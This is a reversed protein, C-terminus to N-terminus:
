FKDFKGTFQQKEAVLSYVYVGVPLAEINLREDLGEEMNGNMKIIESGRLDFVQLQYVNTSNIRMQFHIWNRAPNPYVQLRYNPAHAQHSPTILCSSTDSNVVQIDFNCHQGAFGDIMIYYSTNPKLLSAILVSDGSLLKDACYIPSGWGSATQCSSLEYLVFQVGSGSSPVSQCSINDLKIAIQNTVCFTDLTTFKYWITNEINTIANSGSCEALSALTITPMPDDTGPIGTALMTSGAYATNELVIPTAQACDDSGFPQRPKGTYILAEWGSATTAGDSFFQFTLCGSPNEISAKITGLTNSNNIDGTYVNILRSNEADDGDFVYLYDWNYEIGITDLFAAWVVANTAASSHPCFTKQYSENNGYNGATGLDEFLANGATGGVAVTGLDIPVDSCYLRGIWGENVFTSNSQMKVTLCAKSSIFTGPQPAASSNGSYAGILNAATDAGNYIFIYDNGNSSSQLALQQDATPNPRFSIRVAKNTDPNCFTKVYNENNSYNYSSGGSDFFDHYAIGCNLDASVNANLLISNPHTNNATGACTWNAIWGANQTANDSTFRICLSGNSATITPPMNNNTYIGILSAATSPGDYIYMFDYNNELDFATFTLSLVNTNPPNITFTYDENKRYMGLEGGTDTFRGSCATTTEDVTQEDNIFSAGQIASSDSPGCIAQVSWLYLANTPLGTLDYSNSNTYYYDYNLNQLSQKVAIKYSSAGSVANWNLKIGNPSNNSTTLGNATACSVATTSSTWNAAWGSNVTGCDTRLELLFTGSKSVIPGPLISGNLVAVLNDHHSDGDYVYLYDYNLELDLMSFTLTVATAGTPEIRYLERANNSYNATPGANDYFTGSPTTFSSTSASSLPNILDYYRHWDWYQGPDTHSNTPYHQHGKVSFCNNSNHNIGYDGNIDYVEYLPINNRQAISKTLAASSQYMINTYWSPDSVFGEHEIGVAFPNAGSAHWAKDAECVMQTIQGDTCRMNYHCSVNSNPNKFWSIAGAYTGQITHVTVHTIASGGRSSYNSPDAEDQIVQFSFTGLDNCSLGTTRIGTQSYAQGDSSRIGSSDIIIQASSLLKYRELGFVKQLDVSTSPMGVLQQFAPVNLNRLITYIHSDFAFNNKLGGDNPIESLVELVPLHDEPAMSQINLDAKILHFAQAYALINTEPDQIIDYKNYDSLNVVLALNNRFFLSPDQVLGMVGHYSPLGLCSPAETLPNIHQFHTNSHAVSELLGKPIAPYLVYAKQFVAQYSNDLHMEWVDQASAFTRFLIFFLVYLYIKM